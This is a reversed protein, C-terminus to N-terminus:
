TVRLRLNLQALLQEHEPVPKTDVLLTEGAGRVDDQRLVAGADEDVATEPMPVLIASIRSLRLCIRLEPASLNLIIALTIQPIVAEQFREAPADDYYPLALQHLVSNVVGNSGDTLLQISVM